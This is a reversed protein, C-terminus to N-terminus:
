TNPWVNTRSFTPNSKTSWAQTSKTPRWDSPVLSHFHVQQQKFVQNRPQAVANYYNRDWNSKTAKRDADTHKAPRGPGMIINTFPFFKFIDSDLSRDFIVPLRSSSSSKPPKASDIPTQMTPKYRGHMNTHKHYLIQVLMLIVTTQIRFKSPIRQWHACRSCWYVFLTPHFM